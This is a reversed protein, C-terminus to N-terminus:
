LLRDLLTNAQPWPGFGSAPNLHGVPGIDELESGWDRALDRVAAFDGLPDNRSAAVLSRFPLPQRPVPLWGAADLAESGFARGLHEAFTEDIGVAVVEGSVALGVGEAM